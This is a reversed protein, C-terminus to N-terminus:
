GSAKLGDSIIRVMWSHVGMYVPIPQQFSVDKKHTHSIVPQLNNFQQNSTPFLM